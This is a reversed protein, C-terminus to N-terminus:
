RGGTQSDTLMDERNGHPKPKQSLGTRCDKRNAGEGRRHGAPSLLQLTGENRIGTQRYVYPPFMSGPKTPHSGTVGLCAPGM